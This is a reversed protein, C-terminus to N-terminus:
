VASEPPLLLEPWVINKVTRSAQDRLLVHLKSVDTVRSLAVYLQGHSFVSNRLDLGVEPLAPRPISPAHSYLWFRVTKLQM